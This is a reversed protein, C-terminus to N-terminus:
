SVKQILVQKCATNQREAESRGCRRFIDDDAMCHLRSQKDTGMVTVTFRVLVHCFYEVIMWVVWVVITIPSAQYWGRISFIQM